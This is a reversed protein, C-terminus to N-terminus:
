AGLSPKLAPNDASLFNQSLITSRFGRARSRRAAAESVAQQVAPADPTVPPTPKDPNGMTVLRGVGKAIAHTPDNQLGQFAEFTKTNSASTNHKGTSLGARAAESLGGTSLAVAARGITNGVSGGM